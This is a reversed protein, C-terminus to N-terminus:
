LAGVLVLVLGLALLALWLYAWGSPPETM